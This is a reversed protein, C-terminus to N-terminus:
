SNHSKEADKSKMKEVTKVASRIIRYFEEDQHMVYALVSAIEIPNGHLATYADISNEDATDAIVSIGLKSDSENFYEAMNSKLEELNM